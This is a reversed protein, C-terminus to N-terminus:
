RAPAPGTTSVVTGRAARARAYAAFLGARVRPWSYQRVAELGAARLQSALARDELLRLVAEALAQSSRPPVLLATKEHEVLYPIGGVRTTVIPVGSALGELLSIPFNDVLSANVLVSASRYLAPLESNPLAGAFRV